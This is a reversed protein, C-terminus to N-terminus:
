DSFALQLLKRALNRCNCFLGAQFFNVDHIAIWELRIMSGTVGNIEISLCKPPTPTNM